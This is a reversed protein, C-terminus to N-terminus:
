WRYTLQGIVVQAKYPRQFYGLALYNQTTAATPQALNALPNFAFDDIEYRDLRYIFELVVHNSVFYKGDVKNQRLRSTIAPLQVPTAIVTNQTLGYVYTSKSRVDGYGINIETKPILELLNISADFTETRDDNDDTWDRRFDNFQQTMDNLSGDAPLPNATRSIQFANYRDQGYSAGFSIKDIPVFDFGVSHSRNNNSRLGFVTRTDTAPYEEKGAGSSVNVSFQSIPTIVMILSYRDKNRDSIDFQRLSPQQGNAFLEMGDFEGKRVSHEFAGRFSLWSIGTLDISTRGTNETSEETARHTQEFIARTYGVGFGLYSFPSLTVDTNLTHRKFSLPETEKNKTAVSTDYRIVQRMEFPVTKNDLRYQKFRTNVYLWNTPRSTLTYNVALVQAKIESMERSLPIVPLASNITFPILPNNNSLQGVSFYATANSHAPLKIWSSTSVTNQNTNPWLAERGMAPGATPSDSVRLPNDWTFIPINNRFFSGDYGFRIFARNNSLEIGAGLDTTRRDIPLPVEDSIAFGFSTGWPQSGNIRTDKVTLVYARNPTSNYKVEFDFVNRGSRLEIPSASIAAKTLTLTRKEVGNQISDDLMFVGPASSSYLTRTSDSYFLPIQNYGFSMKVKGFRNYSGSFEQDRYGVHNGGFDLSYTKTQKGLRFLDFTLGSGFDNYRQFRAKDSNEGFTTFRYGINIQNKTKGEDAFVRYPSFLYVFILIFLSIDLPRTNRTM